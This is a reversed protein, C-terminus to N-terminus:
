KSDGLEYFEVDDGVGLLIVPEIRQKAFLEMITKAKMRMQMVAENGIIISPKRIIVLIKTGARFKYIDALPELQKIERVTFTQNDKDIAM